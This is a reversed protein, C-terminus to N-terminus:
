PRYISNVSWTEVINTLVTNVNRLSLKRAKLLKKRGEISRTYVVNYPIRMKKLERQLYDINERNRGILEPCPTALFLFVNIGKISHTFIYKQRKIPSVMEELATAFVEKEHATGGLLSFELEDEIEDHYIYVFANESKIVGMERFTNLVANAQIKIRRKPSMLRAIFIQNKILIAMYYNLILALLAVKVPTTAFLKSIDISKVILTYIITNLAMFISFMYNRFLIELSRFSKNIKKNIIVNKRMEYNDNNKIDNEGLAKKWQDKMYERDSAFELTSKNINKINGKLDAYKNIDLRSIGSEIVPRLYHPGVFSKFRRELISFDESNFLFKGEPNYISNENERKFMTNPEVTALHWINASKNAKNPDVRIARGRMQNSLVFSGIFSALILSNINPSDWGEGLLSKTGILIEIKGLKFAETLLSVMHSSNSFGEYIIYDDILERYSLSNDTITNKALIVLSGTLVGIKAKGGLSRRITEFIPIIGIQTIKNNSGIDSLFEKKIYDGLILMRLESALNDYEAVCIKEISELKAVSQIALKKNKQNPSMNIKNKYLFHYKKLKDLITEYLDEPFLEKHNHIFIFGKEIDGKKGKIYNYKSLFIKNINTPAKEKGEELIRLFGIFNDEDDFCIDLFEERGLFAKNERALRHILGENHLERIFDNIKKDFKNILNMEEKSPYNFYIYDQHYCLNGEKVLEPVFIEEDITGCVSIYKDWQSKNSDYPPTATLAIVKYAPGLEKLFNELARQWESQLHHAEDLCITKIGSKKITNILEFGEYSVNREDDVDTDLKNFAAYLSQYTISTIFKIEKLSFSIIDDINDGENIFSEEFRQKWQNRIGLNPSLVLTNEGLRCILELGLITKGSGPAAVIHIHNDNLHEKANDLVRQQYKRFEGKFKYM